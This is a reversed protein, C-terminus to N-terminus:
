SSVYETFYAAKIKWDESDLLEHINSRNASDLEELLFSIQKQWQKADTALCVLEKMVKMERIPTTIIPRGTALYEKFKLPQIADTLENVKYPMMCIDWGTIIGPLETYPVPGTFHLNRLKQLESIETEIRGTIVFSVHPMHSAIDKLLDQDNRDDFLGFYGVRPKPIDSLLSNEETPLKRFFDIDVGHTLLFTPKGYSQLRDFLKGSTAIFIDTKSVLDSEMRRVLENNLGPWETFDDVCYYVVKAEDLHGIYDCANPVTTVLIPKHIRLRSLTRRVTSTVFQQNWRRIININSLPLMFPQCVHLDGPYPVYTRNSESHIMRFLKKRAKQLDQNSLIPNRMGITNVWLVSHRKAIHKFIHQCSSPHIGWDDSFVLFTYKNM